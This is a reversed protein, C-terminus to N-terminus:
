AFDCGCVASVLGRYEDRDLYPVRALEHAPRQWVVAFVSPQATWADLWGVLERNCVRM